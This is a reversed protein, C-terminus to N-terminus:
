INVYKEVYNTLSVNNSKEFFKYASCKQRPPLISKRIISYRAIHKRLFDMIVVYYLLPHIYDVARCTCHLIDICIVACLYIEKVIACKFKLIVFAYNSVINFALM